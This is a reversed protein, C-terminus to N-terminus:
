KMFMNSLFTSIFPVYTVIMLAVFIPVYFPATGKIVNKVSMKEVDALAFLVLGFPPTILGLMLSVIIIMCAHIPALGLGIMIPLFIPTAVMIGAIQDIFCGLIILFINIILLILFPSKITHTMFNGLTVAMQERIVVQSFLTSCTIIFMTKTTVSMASKFNKVQEKWSFTKYAFGLILVYIVAVTASETATFFGGFMGGLIIVITFLSPFAKIFSKLMEKLTARKLKKVNPEKRVLFVCMVGLASAVIIGPLIGGLFLKGISQGAVVGLVIMPVSPPIIPGIVSSAATTGVSLGQSYGRKKMEFIEITGIGAADALATGSMGAFIVSGLINVQALGGPLHGVTKEAFNYIRDSVGYLNMMNGALLFFLVAVLPFSNLSEIMKLVIMAPPLGQLLLYILSPIGLAVAVPMRLFLLIMFAFIFVLMMM